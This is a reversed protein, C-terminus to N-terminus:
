NTSAGGEAASRVVADIFFRPPRVAKRSEAQLFCHLTHGEAILTTQRLIRYHLSITSAPEWRFTTEIDLEDDYFAPSRYFVHAEMVPLLYGSREIEVYALGISRLLETRGIEFLTLYQGNYMYTMTDTDAYRVRYAFHHVIAQSM